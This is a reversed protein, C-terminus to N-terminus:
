RSRIRQANFCALQNKRRLKDINLQIQALAAQILQGDEFAHPFIVFGEPVPYGSQFLRALVRGKGGAYPMLSEEMEEFSRVFEM